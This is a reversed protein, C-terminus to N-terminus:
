TIPDSESRSRSVRCSRRARTILALSSFALRRKLQGPSLVRHNTNTQSGHVSARTHHPPVIRRPPVENGVDHKLIATWGVRMAPVVVVLLNPIPDRLKQLNRTRYRKHRIAHRIPRARVRDRHQLAPTGSQPPCAYPALMRATASPEPHIAILHRSHGPEGPPANVLVLRVALM